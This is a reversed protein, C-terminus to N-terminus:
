FTHTCAHTHTRTHTRAHTHSGVTSTCTHACVTCEQQVMVLRCVGRRRAAAPTEHRQGKSTGRRAEGPPSSLTAQLGDPACQGGTGRQSPSCHNRCKSFLGHTHTHPQTHTHTHTHTHAHTHVTLKHVLQLLTIYQATHAHTCFYMHAPCTSYMPCKLITATFSPWCTHSQQWCVTNCVAHM